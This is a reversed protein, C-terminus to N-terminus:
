IFRDIKTSLLANGTTTLTAKCPLVENKRKRPSMLEPIQDDPTQKLRQVEELCATRKEALSSYLLISQSFHTSEIAFRHHPLNKVAVIKVSMNLNFIPVNYSSFINM